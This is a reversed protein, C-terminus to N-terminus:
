RRQFNVGMRRLYTLVRRLYLNHLASPPHPMAMREALLYVLDGLHNVLTYYFVPDDRLTVLLSRRIRGELEDMRVLGLVPAGRAEPDVVSGLGRSYAVYSCPWLGM